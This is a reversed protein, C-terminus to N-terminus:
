EKIQNRQAVNKSIVISKEKILENQEELLKKM